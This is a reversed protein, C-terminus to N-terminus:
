TIMETSPGTEACCHASTHFYQLIFTTRDIILLSTVSCDAQQHKRVSGFLSSMLFHTETLHFDGHSAVNLFATMHVSTVTVHLQLLAIFSGFSTWSLRVPDFNDVPSVPLM